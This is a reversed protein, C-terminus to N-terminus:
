YSWIDVDIGQERLAESRASLFRQFNPEHKYAENLVYDFVSQVHFTKLFADTRMVENGTRDFLVISPAFKIGLENAWQRATTNKGWPTVLPTDAWMDLQVTDFQEIIERTSPDSLTNEHLVDCQECQKQEFFVALPRANEKRVLEYPPPMFFSQKNLDGDQAPPSIAALYDNYSLEKEKHQNVYDLALRFQEPPYYGDLRLAVKGQEDFFMLTPTYNVRLAEALTKETFNKGGVHVVDLDGWMNIAVVDLKERVTDYIDKQAFNHEVLANCYPCGDQHFYLMLRKNEAAAEAIDEEFDLFSEKFWDPMVTEMAGIFEGHKATEQAAVLSSAFLFLSFLVIRVVSHRRPNLRDFGKVLLTM